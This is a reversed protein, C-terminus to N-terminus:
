NQNEAGSLLTPSLMAIYLTLKAVSAGFPSCLFQVLPFSCSHTAIGRGAKHLMKKSYRQTENSPVM